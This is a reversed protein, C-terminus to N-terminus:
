GRVDYIIAGGGEGVDECAGDAIGALAAPM